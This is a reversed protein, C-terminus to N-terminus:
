FDIQARLGGVFITDEGKPADRGYPEWIVQFDPSLALHENIRFNYYAELHEEPKAKFSNAEKYDSSPYIQSFALGLSDQERGWLNGSIQLGISWFHEFSTEEGQLYVKPNQWGYRLFLGLSNTLEQDISVGLGYGRKKTSAPEKWKVHNKDNLWVYLRYNGPRSFGQPKFNCQVALFMNDFLDEWDSNADMALLEIELFRKPKFSLRLGPGNDDPFEILPSNKFSDGLFQTTEDNAYENTDIYVTADLKGFTLILPISKFYHEYYAEILDFNEDGTVDANVNSFLKLEDTLGEGGGAEFHLYARGYDSFEKELEVDVSYSTDAVDEGKKSLNDGNANYTAQFIFTAGASINLGKFFDSGIKGTDEEGLRAELQTIRQKLREIEQRIEEEEAFGLKAKNFFSFFFLLGVGIKLYRM